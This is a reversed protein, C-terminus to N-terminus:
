RVYQKEDQEQRERLKQQVDAAAVTAARLKKDEAAAASRLAAVSAGGRAAVGELAPLRLLCQRTYDDPVDQLRSFIM